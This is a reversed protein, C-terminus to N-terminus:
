EPKSPLGLKDCFSLALDELRGRFIPLHDLHDFSVRSILGEGEPDGPAHGGPSKEPLKFLLAGLFFPSTRTCLVAMERSEAAWTWVSTSEASESPNRSTEEGAKLLLTDTTNPPVSSTENPVTCVTELRTDFLCLRRVERRESEPLEALFAALREAARWSLATAFVERAASAVEPPLPTGLEKGNADLCSSLTYSTAKDEREQGTAGALIELQEGFESSKLATHIEVAKLRLEATSLEAPEDEPLAVVVIVSFIPGTCAALLFSSFAVSHTHVGAEPAGTAGIFQQMAMALSCISNLPLEREADCAGNAYDILCDGGAAVCLWRGTFGEPRWTDRKREWRLEGRIKVERVSLTPM